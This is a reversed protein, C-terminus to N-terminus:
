LSLTITLNITPISTIFVTTCFLFYVLMLVINCHKHFCWRHHFNLICLKVYLFAFNMCRCMFSYHLSMVIANRNNIRHHVVIKFFIRHWHYTSKTKWFALVNSPCYPLISTCYTLYSHSTTYKHLFWKGLTYYVNILGIYNLQSLYCWIENFLFM